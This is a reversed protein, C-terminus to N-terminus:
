LRLGAVADALREVPQKGIACILRKGREEVVVNVGNASGCFYALGNRNLHTWGTVCVDSRKAIAFTMPENDFSTSVCAINKKGLRHVCCSTLPTMIQPLEPSAPWARRIETTAESILRVPVARTESGESDTFVATFQAPQANIPRRSLYQSALLAVFIVAAAAAMIRRNWSKAALWGLATGIGRGAPNRSMPLQSRFRRWVESTDIPVLRLKALRQSTQMDLDERHQDKRECM